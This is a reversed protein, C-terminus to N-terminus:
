PRYRAVLNIAALTRLTVVAVAAQQLLAVQHLLTVVAVAAQQLLAAV